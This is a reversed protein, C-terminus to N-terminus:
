ASFRAEKHFDNVVVSGQVGPSYGTEYDVSCYCLFPFSSFFDCSVICICIFIADREGGVEM